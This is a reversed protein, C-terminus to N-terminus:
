VAKELQLVSSACNAICRPGDSNEHCLDCKVIRDLAESYWCAHYPCAELCAGCRICKEHDILVAGLKDSRFHAHEPCADDCPPIGPCHRCISHTLMKEKERLTWENTYHGVRIGSLGSSSIGEHSLSCAAMCSMCGTCKESARAPDGTCVTEGEALMVRMINQARYVRLNRCKDFPDEAQAEALAAAPVIGFAVCAIGAGSIEVFKRRSIMEVYHAKKEM